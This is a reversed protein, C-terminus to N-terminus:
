RKIYTDTVFVAGGEDLNDEILTDEGSEIRGINVGLLSQVHHVYEHALTAEIATPTRGTTVIPIDGNIYTGSIGPVGSVEETILESVIGDDLAPETNIFSESEVIIKDPPAVDTELLENLQQFIRNQNISLEGGEVPIGQEGSVTAGPQTNETGDSSDDTFPM